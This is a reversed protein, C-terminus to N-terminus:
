TKERARWLLRAGLLSALAAAHVIAPLHNAKILWFHHLVALIAATYIVRHLPIWRGGLRKMSGKTSTVALMSLLTFSAMGAMVFPRETLDEAMAALELAHELFAWTTLHVVSYSFGALGLSRRLPVAWRWGLWNRAPTVALSILLWRLGWEGTVHTIEEIPNAGPGEVAFRGALALAPLATVVIAIMQLRRRSM